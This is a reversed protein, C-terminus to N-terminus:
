NVIADRDRVRASLLYAFGAGVHHPRCTNSRRAAAVVRGSDRRLQSLLATGSFVFFASLATNVIDASLLILFRRELAAVETKGARTRCGAVLVLIGDLFVLTSCATGGIPSHLALEYFKPMHWFPAEVCFTDLRVAAFDSARSAGFVPWTLFPGLGEKM